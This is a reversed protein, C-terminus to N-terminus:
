SVSTCSSKRWPKVASRCDPYKIKHKNKSSFGVVSTMCFYCDNRHNRPKGWKMPVGFPMQKRKGNWWSLLNVECCKCVIEPVWNEKCSEIVRGFYLEYYKKTNATIPQIQSSICFQGCIYCFVNANNKCIKSSM